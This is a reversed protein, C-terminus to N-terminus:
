GPLAFAEAEIEIFFRGIAGVPRYFDAAEAAELDAFFRGIWPALHRDFIRRQHDLTAAFQGGILGAMIECLIAAHDEPEHQQEVREIGLARLDERLRALPRENLFGTLYYSAYPLLEGRGIGVFLDFFERAIKEASAVDAGRALAAHALGLATADGGLRAIRKLLAADPARTLLRALLAYEQARAAEAEDLQGLHQGYLDPRLIARAVGTAAEVSVVRRAPVRSWNSVSPQAIGIRRALETIGGVARIAEELGQDAMSLEFYGNPKIL